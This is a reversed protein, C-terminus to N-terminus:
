EIMRITVMSGAEMDRTAEDLVILCNAGSISTLAGSSQTGTPRVHLEGHTQRVIGRVFLRKADKKRLDVELRAPFEHTATTEKMMARLAARVFLDFTVLTSVPNGPLGFLLTGQGHTGFLLPSGPRIATRHFKVEVDLEPLLDTVYDYRGASVGGTTMLIDYRLGEEIKERLEERDDGVIGLAVPEAGAEQCAAYLAPQSSNRIQGISPARHPEVLESGTSLIGVIPKVRVPVNTVGLAALLAVRGPNIRRGAEIAIEGRSIDEGVRRISRGAAIEKRVTVYGDGEETAEVEVVGDAGDPITAGTMIRVAMGRDVFGDFPSGAAAEGIVRLRAPTEPTAGVSDVAVIAYGDMASNDATPLSEEAVIDHALVRGSSLVLPVTEIPRERALAQRTVIDLAQHFNLM